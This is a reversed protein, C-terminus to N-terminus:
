LGLIWQAVSFYIFLGTGDVLTIIFPGSILAPDIGVISALLPLLSGVSSSWFVILGVATGITLSLLPDQSFIWAAIYGALALVVGLMLGVQVEQFLVKFADKRDVEGVSVARIITSTTQSGANGGTGIMLPIFFSLM